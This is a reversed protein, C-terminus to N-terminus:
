DPKLRAIHMTNGNHRASLNREGEESSLPLFIRAQSSLFRFGAPLVGVIKRPLGDSRIERGVVHPDSNFHQRWYEDTLIAEHDTQYTMESEEFARGMIPGVGLTGF